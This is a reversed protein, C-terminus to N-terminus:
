GKVELLSRLANHLSENSPYYQYVIEIAELIASRRQSNLANWILPEKATEPCHSLDRLLRKAEIEVSNEVFSIAGHKPCHFPKIDRAANEVCTCPNGSHGVSNPPPTTM